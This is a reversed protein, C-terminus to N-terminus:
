GNEILVRLIGCIAFLEPDRGAGTESASFVGLNKGFVFYFQFFQRQILGIGWIVARRLMNATVAFYINPVIGLTYL